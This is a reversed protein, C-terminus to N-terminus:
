VLLPPARAPATSFHLLLAHPPRHRRGRGLFLAALVLLLAVALDAPQTTLGALSQVATAPTVRSTTDADDQVAASTRPSEYQGGASIPASLASAASRAAAGSPGAMGLVCSLALILVSLQRLVHSRRASM